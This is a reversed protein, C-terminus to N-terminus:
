TKRINGNNDDVKKRDNMLVLRGKELARDVVEPPFQRKFAAIEARTVPVPEAVAM